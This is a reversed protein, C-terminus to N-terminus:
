KFCFVNVLARWMVNIQLDMTDKCRLLELLRGQELLRGTFIFTNYVQMFEKKSRQILYSKQM